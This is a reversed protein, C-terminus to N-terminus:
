EFTSQLALARTCYRQGLRENLTRLQKAVESFSCQNDTTFEQDFAKEGRGRDGVKEGPGLKINKEYKM